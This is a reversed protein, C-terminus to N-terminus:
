RSSLVDTQTNSYIEGKQTHIVEQKRRSEGKYGSKNYNLGDDKATEETQSRNPVSGGSGDNVIDNGLQIRKILSECTWGPILDPKYLLPYYVSEGVTQVM